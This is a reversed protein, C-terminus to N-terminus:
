KYAYTKKLAIKHNKIRQRYNTTQGIYIKNNVKCQIKYVTVSM